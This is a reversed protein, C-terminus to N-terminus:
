EGKELFLYYREILTIEQLYLRKREIDELDIIDMNQLYENEFYNHAKETLLAILDCLELDEEFLYQKNIIDIVNFTDGYNAFEYNTLYLFRDLVSFDFSFDILKKM